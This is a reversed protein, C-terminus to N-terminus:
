QESQYQLYESETMGHFNLAKGNKDTLSFHFVSAGNRAMLPWTRNHWQIQRIASKPLEYFELADRIISLLERRTTVHFAGYHSDPTYCGSLGFSLGFYVNRAM